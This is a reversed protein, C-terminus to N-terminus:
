LKGKNNWIFTAYYRSVPQWWRRGMKEMETYMIMEDWNISHFTWLHYMMMFDFMWSELVVSRVNNEFTNQSEIHRMSGSIYESGFPMYLLKKKHPELCSSRGMHRICSCSESALCFLVVAAITIWAHHSQTHYWTLYQSNQAHICHLMIENARVHKKVFYM